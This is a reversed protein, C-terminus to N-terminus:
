ARMGPFEVNGFDVGELDDHIRQLNEMAERMSDGQEGQQFSDPLSDYWSELETRLEEVEEMASEVQQYADTLRQSRSNPLDIKKLSAVTAEGFLQKLKSEVSNINAAEVLLTLRYKPKRPAAKKLAM